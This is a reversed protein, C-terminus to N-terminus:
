GGEEKKDGKKKRVKDNKKRDWCRKNGDRTEVGKRETEVGWEVTCPGSKEKEIWQKRGKDQRKKRIGGRREKDSKKRVKDRKKQREIHYRKKRDSLERMREIEM